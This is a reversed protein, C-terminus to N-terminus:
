YTYKYVEDSVVNSIGTTSDGIMDLTIDKEAMTLFMHKRMQWDAMDVLCYSGIPTQFLAEYGWGGTNRRVKDVVQEAIPVVNRLIDDGTKLVDGIKSLDM